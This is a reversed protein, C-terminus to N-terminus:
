MIGARPFATRRRDWDDHGPKVRADMKKASSKVFVISQRTSGPLSQPDCGPWFSLSYDSALEHGDGHVLGRHR